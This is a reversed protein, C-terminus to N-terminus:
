KVKKFSVGMAKLEKLIAQAEEERGLQRLYRERNFYLYTSQGFLPSRLYDRRAKFTKRDPQLPYGLLRLGQETYMLAQEAQGSTMATEGLMSLFSVVQLTDNRQKAQELGENLILQARRYEEKETFNFALMRLNNWDNREVLQEFKHRPPFFRPILRLAADFQEAAQEFDEDRMLICGLNNHRAILGPYAKGEEALKFDIKQARKAYDKAVAMQRTKFYAIALQDFAEATAPHVRGYVRRSMELAQTLFNLALAPIEGALCIQGIDMLGRVVHGGQDGYLQKDLELAQKFKVGASYADKKSLYYLGESRALSALQSLPAKGIKYVMRAEKFAGKGELYRGHSLHFLSSDPAGAVARRYLKAVDETHGLMSLVIALDHSAIAREPDQKASDRRQYMYQVGEEPEGAELHQLMKISFSDTRMALVGSVFRYDEAMAQLAPLRDSEEISEMWRMFLTPPMSLWPDVDHWSWGERELLQMWQLLPNSTPQRRQKFEPYLASWRTLSDKLEFEPWGYDLAYDVLRPPLQYSISLEWARESPWYTGYSSAFLFSSSQASVCFAVFLSWLTLILRKKM